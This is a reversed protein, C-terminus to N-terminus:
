GERDTPPGYAYGRFSALRVAILAAGLLVVWTQMSRSGESTFHAWIILSGYSLLATALPLMGLREVWWWRTFAVAACITGGVILFWAWGTSVIPGWEAEVTRPPQALVWVGFWATAVYVIFYIPDQRPPKRAQAWVHKVIARM